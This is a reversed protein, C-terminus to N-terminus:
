KKWNSEEPNEAALHFFVEAQMPNTDQFEDIMFYSHRRYIYDILRGENFDADRQLMNRLYYLYDFFTFRGSQRMEEELYPVCALLFSLTQYYKYERLKPILADKSDEDAINLM